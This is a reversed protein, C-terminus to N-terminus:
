KTIKLRAEEEEIFKEIRLLTLLREDDNNGNEIFKKLTQRGVGIKSAVHQLDRPDARLVVWLRTRLINRNTYISENM